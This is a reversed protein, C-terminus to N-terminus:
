LISKQVDVYLSFVPTKDSTFAEGGCELAKYSYVDIFEGARRLSFASNYQQPGEKKRLFYLLINIIYTFFLFDWVLFNSDKQCLQFM